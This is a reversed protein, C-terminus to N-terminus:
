WNPLCIMCISSFPFKSREPDSVAKFKEEVVGNLNSVISAWIKFISFQIAEEVAEVVARSNAWAEVLAMRAEVVAWIDAKLKWSEVKSERIEVISVVREFKMAEDLARVRVAEVVSFRALVTRAVIPADIMSPIVWNLCNATSLKLAKARVMPVFSLGAPIVRYSWIVPAGNQISITFPWGAVVAPSQLLGGGEVTEVTFGGGVLEVVEVVVVATISKVADEVGEVVEVVVVLTALEVGVIISVVVVLVVMDIVVSVAVVVLVALVVV